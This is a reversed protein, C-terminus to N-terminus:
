KSSTTEEKKASTTNTDPLVAEQKNETDKKLNDILFIFKVTGDDTDNLMTFNNYEKALEQLKEMRVQMEKGNNMVLDYIKQIGDEDFQTMGEALQSAGESLQSTGETLQGLGSQLIALESDLATLKESLIAEYKGLEQSLMTQSLEGSFQKEILNNTIQRTLDEALDEALTRATKESVTDIVKGLQAQMATDNAFSKELEEVLEKKINEQVAQLTDQGIRAAIEDTVKQYYASIAQELAGDTNLSTVVKQVETEAMTPAEKAVADLTADMTGKSVTTAFQSVSKRAQALAEADSLTPSQIKIGPVMAQAMQEEAASLGAASSTDLLKTPDSITNKMTDVKTTIVDSTATKVTNTVDAIVIQKIQAELAKVDGKQALNALALSIDKAISQKTEESIGGNSNQITQKTYALATQTTKEQIIQNNEHIVNDAEAKALAKLEPSLKTIEANVIEIIQKELKEQNELEKRASRYMAIKSNLQKALEQMGTDLTRSGDKLQNSGDVLQNSADQLTTAMDYIHNFKSFDFDEELLNASVFGYIGNMEFDEADMTIEVKSPIEIEEIGLSEQLGPMAVGVVITKDGNNIVKGNSIEVNKSHNNAFVTGCVVTFPTYMTKTKGQITVSHKEQNRYTICIQVKGSKGVIDQASIEEGDLTYTVECLVPPKKETEGQYFIDKGDAQWIIETGNQTFPEDGGVNKIRLLDSVDTLTTAGDINKLESNVITQYPKGTTDLKSYVTEEKTFAFVPTAYLTLSALLAGATIKQIRKNMRFGEKRKPFDWRQKAFLDM